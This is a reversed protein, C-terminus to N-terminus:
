WQERTIPAAYHLSHLYPFTDPGGYRRKFPTARWCRWAFDADASMMQHLNRRTRGFYHETREFAPVARDLDQFLKVMKYHRIPLLGEDARLLEDMKVGQGRRLVTHFGQNLDISPEFRLLPVKRLCDLTGYLRYRIDVSLSVHWHSGFAWQIPQFDQYGLEDTPPRFYHWDMTTLFNDATVPEGAPDPMMDLLLGAAYRSGKQELGAIHSGLPPGNGSDTPTPIDLFEDVDATLVWSGPEQFAGMLARLWFVKSTRFVGFRPRVVFVDDGRLYDELLEDSGDDVVIFRQVGLARYHRLWPGLYKFNNRNVAYLTICNSAGLGVQDTDALLYDIRETCEPLQVYARQASQLRDLFVDGASERVSLKWSAYAANLQQFHYIKRDSAVYAAGRPNAAQATRGLDVEEHPVTLGNCVTFDRCWASLDFIDIGPRSIFVLDPHEALLKLIVATEDFQRPMIEDLYPRNHYISSPLTIRGHTGDGWEGAFHHILVRRQPDRVVELTCAVEDHTLFNDGDLSSYYRATVLDAFSNKAWSFHWFPLPPLRYFRLLGNTLAEGFTARIWQECEDDEDFCAVIFEIEDTFGAAASLNHALTEQLDALRNMVPICYSIEKQTPEIPPM